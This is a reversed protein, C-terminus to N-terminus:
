DCGVPEIKFGIHDRQDEFMTPHDFDEKAKELMHQTTPMQQTIALVADFQLGLRRDDGTHQNGQPRPSLWRQAGILHEAPVEGAHSIFVFQQGVDPTQLFLILGGL